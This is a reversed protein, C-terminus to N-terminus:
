ISKTLEQIDGVDKVEFGLSKIQDRIRDSEAWNKESRAKLRVELLRKVDEPVVIEEKVVSGFMLGLVKDFDLLIARKEADGINSDKVLEWVLALAKPTDLDDNIAEVFRDGYGKDVTTQSGNNELTNFYSQLKEYATQSAKIAELSYDVRTSYRSTLLWYRYALSHIGNEGLTKLTIFNEGSKAMKDTGITVHANHMWFNAMTKGTSCETQAIENNHHVPIHDIGGTHIDFPVGLYKESMASCEIHWGPFGKGFSADFGLGSEDGQGGNVSGAPSGDALSKGDSAHRAPSLRTFKWLAFDRYDKKETNQEIRSHDNDSSIGGLKGYNEDKSTDFYIGDSTQYAFGKQILVSIMGASEKIHDSAFPFKDPFEINLKELDVKFKEFYFDAVGRMNELTMEKGERKLAKVMKDEGDDADSTLHGIDTVNMIHKVKYGNYKLTRKLIDVFVYARLNGIHADYYVTPGCSYLRVESENIPKFEQKTKGLTNYLHITM